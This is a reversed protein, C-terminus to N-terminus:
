RYEEAENLSHRLKGNNDIMLKSKTAKCAGTSGGM